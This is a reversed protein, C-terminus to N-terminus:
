KYVKIVRGDISYHTGSMRNGNVFNGEFWTGNKYTCKGKGHPYGNKIDGVYVTGYKDLTQARGKILVGDEFVGDMWNGDSITVKGEKLNKGDFVGECVVEVSSIGRVMIKVGAARVLRAVGKEVPLNDFKFVEERKSSKKPYGSDYRSTKGAPREYQGEAYGKSFKGEYVTGDAYTLRGNGEFKGNRCEGEYVSGDSYYKLMRGESLEGDAFTGQMFSGDSFMVKGKVFLGEKFYGDMTVQVFGPGNLALKVGYRKVRYIKDPLGTFTFVVKGEGHALGRANWGEYVYKEETGAPHTKVTKKMTSKGWLIGNVYFGETEIDSKPSSVTVKGKGDLHEGVFYGQSDKRYSGDKSVFRMTGYRVDGAGLAVGVFMRQKWETSKWVINGRLWEGDKFIGTMEQSTTVIKGEHNLKGDIFFGTTYTDANPDYITGYGFLRGDCLVPAKVVGGASERSPIDKRLKGRYWVQHVPEEQGPELMAIHGHRVGKKFDGSYEVGKKDTLKGNGHPQGDRTMGTYTYKKETINRVQGDVPGLFRPNGRDYTVYRAVDELIDEGPLERNRGIQAVKTSDRLFEGLGSTTMVDFAGLDVSAMDEYTLHEMLANTFVYPLVNMVRNMANKDFATKGSMADAVKKKLDGISPFCESYVREALAAFERDRIKYSFDTAAGVELMYADYICKAFSQWLATSHLVAYLRSGLLGNLRVVEQESLSSVAESLLQSVFKYTLYEVLAVDKDSVDSRTALIKKLDTTNVIRVAISDVFADKTETESQAFACSLSMVLLSFTLAFLKKM